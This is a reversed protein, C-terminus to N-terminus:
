LITNAPQTSARFGARQSDNGRFRSDANTMSEQKRLTCLLLRDAVSPFRAADSAM